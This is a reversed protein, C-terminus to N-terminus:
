GDSELPVIRPTIFVLMENQQRSKTSNKFLLGIIPISGLGPVRSQAWSESTAYVGGLVTTDGDPVLVRTEISKTTISPNGNVSNSFDPRDNSVSIDLFITGDSTIHPTVALELNAEVFQVQTGNQSTSVFPVRAGQIVTAEENDLATVRPSSIIKGWGEAELATLRANLDLLGPISGLSLALAGAPTGSAALDVLLSDSEATFFTGAGSTLQGGSVGVSSPFFAGTPYGTAASADVMGGWQIGLSRTFNSTAEVFRAEISVQRNPRDLTRLLERIQAVNEEQDRIILQNGRADVQVSGRASLVATVQETLEDAQAYNLPAVYLQLEALDVRAKESELSAQQEAKITELPAVRIINGLRQAGLGKAQLVAGLAEDWPVDKLRVTVKGAVDDSTIINIDAFDAIFRFVVHIDAEQLDISMRKGTSRASTSSKVDTAFSLSGPSSSGGGSGFVAQPDVSRGSGTILVESGKANSLGQGGNTEPTAPAAPVSRSVAAGQIAAERKALIDSPIQISLVTLGGERSVEYEAGERLVVTIRAGAATPAARVSDVASYFFRTDLERGLSEAIRAGPLDIAITNRAPQSVAPEVDHAGILVRSVRDKQQFDLTALAPGAIPAQPGSLKVGTDSPAGLAEALPDSVAGPTLSLVIAGDESKIDWQAPGTLWLTLRVNDTGDNFTGYEARSVLGGVGPAAGPTLRAGAIDLVLREPNTQRFPSVTPRAGAADIAIRVVTVNATTGIQAGGVNPPDAAFAPASALAAVVVLGAVRTRSTFDGLFFRIM